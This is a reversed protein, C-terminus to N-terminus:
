CTGPELESVHLTFWLDENSQTVNTITRNPLVLEYAVMNDIGLGYQNSMFSYGAIM